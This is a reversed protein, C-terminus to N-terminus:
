ATRAKASYLLAMAYHAAGAATHDARIALIAEEEARRLLYFTEPQSRIMIPRERPKRTPEGIAAARSLRIFATRSQSPANAYVPPRDARTAGQMPLSIWSTERLRASPRTRSCSTSTPRM